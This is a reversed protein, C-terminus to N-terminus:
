IGGESRFADQFASATGDEHFARRPPAGIPYRREPAAPPPPKPLRPMAPSRGSIAHHYDKVLRSCTEEALWLAGLLRRRSHALSVAFGASLCYSVLSTMWAWLPVRHDLEAEARLFMEIALGFTASVVTSRTGCSIAALLLVPTVYLIGTGTNPMAMVLGLQVLAIAIGMIAVTSIDGSLSDFAPADYHHSVHGDPPLATM